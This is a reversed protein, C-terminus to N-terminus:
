SAPLGDFYVAYIFFNLGWRVSFLADRNCISICYRQKPPLILVTTRFEGHLFLAFRILALAPPLYLLNLTVTLFRVSASRQKSFM